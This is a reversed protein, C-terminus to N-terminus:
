FKSESEKRYFKEVCIGRDDIVIIALKAEEYSPTLVLASVHNWGNYIWVEYLGEGFDPPPSDSFEVRSLYNKLGEKDLKLMQEPEGLVKVVENRTTKGSIIKDANKSPLGLSGTSVCSTILLMIAALCFLDFVAKQRFKSGM